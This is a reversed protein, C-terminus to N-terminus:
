CTPLSNQAIRDNLPNVNSKPIANQRMEFCTGFICQRASNEKMKNQIQLCFNNQFVIILAWWGSLMKM